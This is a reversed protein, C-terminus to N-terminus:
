FGVSTGTYWKGAEADPNFEPDVLSSRCESMDQSDSEPCHTGIREPYRGIEPISTRTYFGSLVAVTDSAWIKAM